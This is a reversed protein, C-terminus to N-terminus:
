ERAGLTAELEGATVFLQRNYVYGGLGLAAQTTTLDVMTDADRPPAPVPAPWVQVSYGVPIYADFEWTQALAQEVAPTVAQPSLNDLYLTINIRRRDPAGDASGNIEAEEVGDISVLSAHLASVADKVNGAGDNQSCGSLGLSAQMILAAGVGRLLAKKFVSTM